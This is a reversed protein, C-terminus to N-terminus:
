VIKKLKQQYPFVVFYLIAATVVSLGYAVSTGWLMGLRPVLFYFGLVFVLSTGNGYPMRKAVSSAFSIGHARLLIIITSSFLAPFGAMLGGWLPGLLKSLVVSLGIIGGCIIGRALLTASTIPISKIKQDPFKRVLIIAALLYCVGVFLSLVITDIKFILFPITSIVWVLIALVYSVPGRFRPYFLVFAAVFLASAPISIPSIISGHAAVSASQTWAIFIYGILSTSPLGVLLGGIKSGFRESVRTMLVAYSGGVIVSLILKVFFPNM